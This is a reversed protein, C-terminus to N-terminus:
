RENCPVAPILDLSSLVFLVYPSKGMQAPVDQKKNQQARRFYGMFWNYQVGSATDDSVLNQPSIKHTHEMHRKQTFRNQAKKCTKQM